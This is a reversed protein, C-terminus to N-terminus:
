YGERIELSRTKRPGKTTAATPSRSLTLVAVSGYCARFVSCITWNLSERFFTVICVKGAGTLNEVEIFLGTEIPLCRRLSFRFTNTVLWGVSQPLIVVTDFKVINMLQM